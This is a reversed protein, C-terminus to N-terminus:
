IDSLRNAEDKVMSSAMVGAWVLSIIAFTRNTGCLKAIVGAIVPSLFFPSCTRVKGENPASRFSQSLTFTAQVFSV